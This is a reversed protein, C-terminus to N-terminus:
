TNYYTIFLLIFISFLFSTMYSILPNSSGIFPYTSSKELSASLALLDSPCRMSKTERVLEILLPLSSDLLGSPLYLCKSFSPAIPVADRQKSNTGTYRSNSTKPLLTTTCRLSLWCVLIGNSFNIFVMTLYPKM